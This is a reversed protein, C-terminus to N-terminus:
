FVTAYVSTPAPWEITRIIMVGKQRCDWAVGRLEALRESIRRLEEPPPILQLKKMLERQEQPVSIKQRPKKPEPMLKKQAGAVLTDSFHVNGDKDTWTYMEAESMSSVFLFAVLSVIAGILKM